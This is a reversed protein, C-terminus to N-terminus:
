VPHTLLDANLTKQEGSPNTQYQNREKRCGARCAMREGYGVGRAEGEMAEEGGCEVQPDREGGREAEGVTGGDGVEASPPQLTSSRNRFPLDVSRRTRFGGFLPNRGEVAPAGREERVLRGEDSLETIGVGEGDERFSEGVGGGGGRGLREGKRAGEGM